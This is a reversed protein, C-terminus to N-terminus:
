MIKGRRPYKGRTNSHEAHVMPMAGSIERHTTAVCLKAENLGTAGINGFCIVM